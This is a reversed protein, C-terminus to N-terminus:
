KVCAAGSVTDVTHVEASAAQIKVRNFARWRKTLQDLDIHMLNVSKDVATNVGRHRSKVAALQALVQPGSPLPLPEVSPLAVTVEQPTLRALVAHLNNGISKMAKSKRPTPSKERHKQFLQGNIHFLM